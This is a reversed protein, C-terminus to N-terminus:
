DSQRDHPEPHIVKKAFYSFAIPSFWILENWKQFYAHKIVKNITMLTSRSIESFCKVSLTDKYNTKSSCNRLVLSSWKASWDFHRYDKGSNRNVQNQPIIIQCSNSDNTNRIPHSLVCIVRIVQGAKRVRDTIYSPDCILQKCRAVQLLLSVAVRMSCRLPSVKQTM